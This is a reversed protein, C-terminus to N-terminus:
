GIAGSQIHPACKGPDTAHGTPTQGRQLSRRPRRQGGPIGLRITCHTLQNQAPVTHLEIGASIKRHDTTQSARVQHGQQGRIAANHAAPRRSGIAGHKSQRQCAPAKIGAAHKGM